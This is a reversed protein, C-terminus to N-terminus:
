QPQPEPQPEPKPEPQPEPEPEPQPEPQPEPEPEPQPEPEPEPQPEPKPQPLKDKICQAATDVIDAAQAGRGATAKVTCLGTLPALSAARASAVGARVVAEGALGFAQVHLTPMQGALCAFVFFGSDNCENVVAKARDLLDHAKDGVAKLEAVAQEVSELNTAVCEHADAELGEVVDNLSEEALICVEVDIGLEQAEEALEAVTENWKAAADLAADTIGQLVSQLREAVNKETEDIKAEVAQLTGEIQELVDTVNIWNYKLNQKDLRVPSSTVAGLTCLVAAIAALLLTKGM